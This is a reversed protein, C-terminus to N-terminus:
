LKWNKELNGFVNKSKWNKELNGFINKSKWNKKWIDIKELYKLFKWIEALNGFKKGFKQM